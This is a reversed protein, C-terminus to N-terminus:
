DADFKKGLDFAKKLPRPRTELRSLSIISGRRPVQWSSEAKKGTEATDLRREVKSDSAPQVSNSTPETALASSEENKSTPGQSVPPGLHYFNLV